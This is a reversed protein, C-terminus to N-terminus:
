KVVRFKLFRDKGLESGKDSLRNIEAELRKIRSNTDPHTKSVQSERSVTEIRKLVTPFGLALYGSQSALLIGAEDAEYEVSQDRGQTTLMEEFEQTVAGTAATVVEGGSPGLLSSVIDLFINGSGNLNIKGHHGLAIHAIEHSLIGALEAENEIKKWTGLTIFVYGGPTAFANIEETELIGFRFSLDSRSSNKSISQGVWNLYKTAEKNQILGFRQILKASLTRGLKVEQKTENSLGPQFLTAFFGKEPEIKTAKAKDFVFSNIEKDEINGTKDLWHLTEFDFQNSNGRVRVKETETLGRAAATKTFDSARQRAEAMEPNGSQSGLKVQAGPPFPSVFLKSVFGTKEGLKVKVFLGEEGVKKLDTGISLPNGPSSVSASQLFKAKPSQVYVVTNSFLPYFTSMVFLIFNTRLLM